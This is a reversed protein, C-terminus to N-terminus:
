ANDQSKKATVCLHWGFHRELFRFASAPLYRFYWNKVYRHQIYDKIRYPFIHEIQMDEVVFDYQALLDTMETKTYTYTVPCGTQAESYRAIIKKAKDFRFKGYKLLIALVKWSYRHYVMLKIKGGPKLFASLQALLREPHPTHHIVGFSFILDYKEAPISSSLEEANAQYFTVKDQVGYVEARARALELSKESLDVATVTAGNQVFSMTTTGIGCGIELVKKGKMSLFDAFLPLHPEVFYKRAKVDEFYEKSGVTKLSHKINCPQKNWYDRVADISLHHFSVNNKM